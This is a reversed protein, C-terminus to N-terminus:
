KLRPKRSPSSYTIVKHWFRSQLKQFRQQNSHGKCLPTFAEALCLHLVCCHKQRPPLSFHCKGKQPSGVCRRPVPLLSSGPWSAKNIERRMAGIQKCSCGVSLAPHHCYSWVDPTQAALLFLRFVGLSKLFTKGAFHKKKKGGLPRIIARWASGLPLHFSGRQGCSCGGAGWPWSPGAEGWSWPCCSAGRGRGKQLLAAALACCIVM